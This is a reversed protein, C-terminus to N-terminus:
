DNNQEYTMRLDKVLSQAHEQNYGQESYTWLTIAARELDNRAIARAIKGTIVKYEILTLDNNLMHLTANCVEEEWTNVTIILKM